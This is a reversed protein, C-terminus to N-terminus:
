IYLFLQDGIYRTYAPPIAQTLEKWTMWDIGMAAQAQAVTGKGTVKGGRGTQGGQKGVVCLMGDDGIYKGIHSRHAPQPILYNSEFLRHRFVKLDFMLGCLVIYNQLPAGPVNEIIYPMGTKKLAARTPAVLDPYIKGAYRYRKSSVSYAQCPPSAHIVDYEHGHEALYELAEAQHFEFPYRKQPNIDVGTVEFGAMSYGM